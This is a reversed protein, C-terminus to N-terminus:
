ATTKSPAKKKEKKRELDLVALEFDRITARSSKRLSVAGFLTDPSDLSRRTEGKETRGEKVRRCVSMQVNM